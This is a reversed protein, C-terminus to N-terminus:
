RTLRGFGVVLEDGYAADVLSVPQGEIGSLVETPDNDTTDRVM